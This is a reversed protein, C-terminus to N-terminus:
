FIREYARDNIDVDNIMHVKHASAALTEGMTQRKRKIIDIIVEHFERKAIGLVEGLTFEVKGNLIREELVKKLDTAAEIDLQLKYAPAKGKEKSSSPMDKMSEERASIPLQQGKDSRTIEKSSGENGDDRKRKEEMVAEHQIRAMYAHISLADVPDSWSTTECISQGADILADKKYEKSEALKLASPWLSSTQGPREISVGACDHTLHVLEVGYTRTETAHTRPLGEMLEKMGGKGFNTKLPAM